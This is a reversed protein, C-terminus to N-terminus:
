VRQWGSGEHGFDFRDPQLIEALIELSEVLRPGPRNMYQNGDTLYVHGERVCRLEAFGPRGTLLGLEQRTRAMDFGCPLLVLVDPDDARLADWEIWPSHEGSRGHLPHGGALRVLEPMWNGAAMLPDLWEVMAVRPRDTLAGTREGIEAVRDSLRRQLARGRGPVGLAEAVRVFDGFVDGLTQPKVSVVRPSAGTWEALAAEVDPLSVACVECQDQTLVLDPALERLREVDVRYVSLGDGLLGKVRDDIESSTGVPEFRPATVVPLSEVGAPHDCEHSRAVLRKGCGLVCVIETLSPLLSVVRKATALERGPSM